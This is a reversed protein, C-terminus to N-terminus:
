HSSAALCFSPRPANGFSSSLRAHRPASSDSSAQPALACPTLPWLQAQFLNGLALDICKIRATPPSHHLSKILLSVCDSSRTSCTGRGATHLVLQLLCSSFCPAGNPPSQLVRPSLPRVKPEPPSRPAVHSSTLSVHSVQLYPSSVSSEPNNSSTMWFVHGRTSRRGPGWCDSAGGGERTRPTYTGGVTGVAPVTKLSAAKLSCPTGSGDPHYMHSFGVLAEGYVKLIRTPPPRSGSM